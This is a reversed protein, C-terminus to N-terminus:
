SKKTLTQKFKYEDEVSDETKVDIKFDFHKYFYNTCGVMM